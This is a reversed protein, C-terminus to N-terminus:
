YSRGQADLILHYRHLVRGAHVLDDLGFAGSDLRDDLEAALSV